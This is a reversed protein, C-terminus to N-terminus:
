HSENNWGLQGMESLNDWREYIWEDPTASRAKAVEYPMEGIDMYYNFLKDFIDSKGYVPDGGENWEAKVWEIEPQSLGAAQLESLVTNSGGMAEKIIRRLHRKTIRMKAGVM